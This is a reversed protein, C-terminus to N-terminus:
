DYLHKEVIDVGRKLWREVGRLSLPPLYVVGAMASTVLRTQVLRSM